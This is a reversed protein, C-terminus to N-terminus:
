AVYTIGFQLQNTYLHNLSLGTNITQGVAPSLQSKGWDGFEYGISTQWHTTIVKQIGAGVTYTFSTQTNQAFPPPAVAAYITPTVTFQYAQNFGVGISGAVYPLVTKSFWRSLLKGKAAVHTHIIKYQYTFNDFTPDALEWVDGQIRASSDTSVAVGFQTLWLANVTQQLGLFFEGSALIQTPTHEVYTNIFDPQLAISQTNSQNYWAPGASLTAVPTGLKKLLGSKEKTATNGVQPALLGFIIGLLLKHKRDM